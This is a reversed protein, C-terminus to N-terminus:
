DTPTPVAKGFHHAQRKRMAEKRARWGSYKSFNTKADLVHELEANRVEYRELDDRHIWEFLPVVYLANNAFGSLLGAQHRAHRIASQPTPFTHFVHVHVHADDTTWANPLGICAYRQSSVVPDSERKILLAVAHSESLADKWVKEQRTDSVLRRKTDRLSPDELVVGHQSRLVMAVDGDKFVLFGNCDLGALPQAVDIAGIAHFLQLAPEIANFKGCVRFAIAGLGDTTPRAYGLLAFPHPVGHLPQWLFQRTAHHLPTAPLSARLPNFHTLPKDDDDDDLDDPADNVCTGDLPDVALVDVTSARHKAMTPPLLSIRRTGHLHVDSDRKARTTSSGNSTHLRRTTAPLSGTSASAKLRPKAYIHLEGVPLLPRGELSMTKPLPDLTLSATHRKLSALPKLAEVLFEKRYKEWVITKMVRNDISGVQEDSGCRQLSARAEPSLLHFIDFRSLVLVKVPSEACITAHRTFIDNFRGATAEACGMVTNPGYRAVEILIDQKTFPDLTKHKAVCEGRVVVYMENARSGQKCIEGRYAFYKEVMVSCMAEITAVDWEPGSFVPNSQLLRVYETHSQNQYKQVLPGYDDRSLTLLETYDVSTVTARRVGNEESLALEGFTEGEKLTAVVTSVQENIRNTTAVRVEVAGSFLIYFHHGRQGEQFVTTNTWASVLRLAKCLLKRVEFSFRAFFKVSKLYEVAFKLDRETRDAAPQMFIARVIDKNSRFRKAVELSIQKAIYMEKPKERLIASYAAKGIFALEVIPTLTVVTAERPHADEGDGVLARDGFCEGPELDCLVREIPPDSHKSLKRVQVHGSLIVYFRDGVDGQRFIPTEPTEFTMLELAKYFETEKHLDLHSCYKGIKSRHFFVKIIHVDELTREAPPTMLLRRCNVVTPGNEAVVHAFAESALTIAFQTALSAKRSENEDTRDKPMKGKLEICEKCRRVHDNAMDDASAADSANAAAHAAVASADVDHRLEHAVLYARVWLSCAWMTVSVNKATTPDLLPDNTLALVEPIVEADTGELENVFDFGLLEKVFHPNSFLKRKAIEWYDGTPTSPPALGLILVVCQMVVACVQPPRNFSKLETVDNKTLSSLAKAAVDVAAQLQSRKAQGLSSTADYLAAMATPHSSATADIAEELATRGAANCRTVDADALLLLRVMDVNGARCAVHLPTDGGVMPANVDAGRGILFDGVLPSNMDAAIGLPTFTSTMLDVNPSLALVDAIGHLDGDQCAHRAAGVLLIGAVLQRVRDNLGDFGTPMAEIAAFIAAKDDPNYAEARRADLHEVSQLVAHRNERLQVRYQTWQETPMALAVSAEAQISAYLEWLCWARSLPIPDLLPSFVLVVKGIAGIASVFTTSWWTHPRSPANHQDVVLLDLWFYPYEGGEALAFIEIAAVLDVFAYKWAHSVFHTAPAIAPAAMTEAFSMNLGFTAPKVVSECVDSTTMSPSLRGQAMLEDKWAVLSAASVGLSPFGPVPM